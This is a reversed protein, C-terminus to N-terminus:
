CLPAAPESLQWVGPTTRAWAWSSLERSRGLCRCRASRRRSCWLISAVTATPALVVRGSAVALELFNTFGVFDNENYSTSDVSDGNHNRKRKGVASDVALALDSKTKTPSKEKEVYDTRALPRKDIKEFFDCLSIAVIPIFKDLRRFTNATSDRIDFENLKRAVFANTEDLIKQNAWKFLLNQIKQNFERYRPKGQDDGCRLHLKHLGEFKIESLRLFQIIKVILDLSKSEKEQQQYYDKEFKTLSLGLYPPPQPSPPSEQSNVQDRGEERDRSRFKLYEAIFVHKIRSSIQQHDLFAQLEFAEDNRANSLIKNALKQISTKDNAIIPIVKPLEKELYDVIKQLDDYYEDLEDLDIDQDSLEHGNNNRRSAEEALEEWTDPAVVPPVVKTKPKFDTLFPDFTDEYHKKDDNLHARVIEYKPKSGTLVKGQKLTVSLTGQRTSLYRSIGHSPKHGLDLQSLHLNFTGYEGIVILAEVESIITEVTGIALILNSHDEKIASPASASAVAQAFNTPAAKKFTTVTKALDPASNLQNLGGKLPKQRGAITIGPSPSNSGSDDSKFRGNETEPTSSKSKLEQGTELLYDQLHEDLKSTPTPTIFTPYNEQGLWVAKAQYRRGDVIGQPIRRASFYIEAGVKLRSPLYNDRGPRAKSEGGGLWVCDSHFIVLEAQLVNKSNLVNIEIDGVHGLGQSNTVYSKIKGRFSHISTDSSKRSFDEYTLNNPDLSIKELDSKYLPVKISPKEQKSINQKGKPKDFWPSVKLKEYPATGNEKIFHCEENDIFKNRARRTKFTVIAWGYRIGVWSSDQKNKFCYSKDKDVESWKGIETYFSEEDLWTPVNRLWVALPNEQAGNDSNNDGSGGSHLAHSM